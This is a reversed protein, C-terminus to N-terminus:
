TTSGPAEEPILRPQDTLSASWIDTAASAAEKSKLGKNTHARYSLFWAKVGPQLLRAATVDDGFPSLLLLNRVHNPHAKDPEIIGWDVLIDTVEQMRDTPPGHRDPTPPGYLTEIASAAEAQVEESTPVAPEEAETWDADIADVDGSPIAFPLDFRRKLADAEARKMAVQAPAMKTREGPMYYGVGECYPRDGIMKPILEVPVGNQAMSKWAEAYALITETDRLICRYALAGEPIFLGRRLDPDTIQEFEPWFNGKIQRRAAKRLGKIGAMLGSDPIYWIEGNFPDLGHAVAAQALALAENTKLKRGGPVMLQVRRAMERVEARDGWPAIRSDGTHTVMAKTPQGTIDENDTM